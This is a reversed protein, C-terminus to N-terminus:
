AATQSASGGEAPRDAGAPAVPATLWRSTVPAMRRAPGAAPAAPPATAALPADAPAPPVPSLEAPGESPIDAPVTLPGAAAPAPEPADPVAHPLVPPGVLADVIDAATRYQSVLGYLRRTCSGCGPKMGCAAKVERATRCGGESMCGRVDDETVGNCLCVYM